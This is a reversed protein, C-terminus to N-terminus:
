THTEAFAVLSAVCANPRDSAEAIELAAMAAFAACWEVLREVEAGIARALQEARSTITKGDDARWLVLDIADFAPDGLCPAPDIAVLGRGEGGDLVNVPTLDGHLLVPASTDGAALRMALQRGREYLELPIMKTLEPRRQYNKSGSAYLYDVREAVSKFSADPIGDSHLSRMLAALRELSPYTPSEALSTGPEIAEIMLAGLTEDIAYVAPVHPTTWRALAAAEDVIRRRDPSAKVVVPRGGATRGRIV